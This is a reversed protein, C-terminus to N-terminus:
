SKAELIGLNKYKEKSITETIIAEPDFPLFTTATIVDFKSSDALIYSRKGQEFAKKKIIAEEIDPTTFGQQLDVGNTGIFAIDFKFKGLTELAMSGIFADTSLKLEGGILYSKYGKSAAKRCILVSNTIIRVNPVDLEEMLAHTTTGADLYIHMNPQILEAAKVAILKKAASQIGMKDEISLEYSISEDNIAQAGGRLRILKGANNLEILDARTTSESSDTLEMLAHLSVYKRENVAELIKSFRAEKLM